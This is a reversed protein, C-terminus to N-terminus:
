PKRSALYAVIDVIDEDNLPKVVPRMRQVDASNRAGAKIDYIQRVLNSPSRGAIPPIDGVGKLDAGHCSVCALTKGGGTTVLAEGKKISGEPVYAVFGLESDALDFREMDAPTEIIRNGIPEMGGEPIPVLTYQISHTKPVEATEVVKMYPKLKLSSFYAAATKLDERSIRPAIYDAMGHYSAMRMDASKRSKDVYDQFQQIIYDAPLGALPANEPLGRGNPMHCFACAVLTPRHGQMVVAPAPPHDDPHWDIANFLDLTASRPLALNSNPVHRLVEDGPKHKLDSTIPPDMAFAWNPAPVTPAPGHLYDRNFTPVAPKPTDANAPSQAAAGSAGVGISAAALLVLLTASTRNM